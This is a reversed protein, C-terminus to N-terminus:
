LYIYDVYLYMNEDYLYMYEDYKYMNTECSHRRENKQNQNIKDNERM